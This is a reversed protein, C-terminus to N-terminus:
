RLSRGDRSGRLVWGGAGEVQFTSALVSGTMLKEPRLLRQELTRSNHDPRLGRSFSM